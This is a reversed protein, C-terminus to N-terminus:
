TVPASLARRPVQGPRQSTDRRTSVARARHDRILFNKGSDIGAGRWFPPDDHIEYIGATRAEVHLPSRPPTHARARSLRPSRWVSVRVKAVVSRPSSSNVVQSVPWPIVWM